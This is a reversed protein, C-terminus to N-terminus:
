PIGPSLLTFAFSRRVQLWMCRIDSNNGNDEMGAPSRYNSRWVRETSAREVVKACVFLGSFVAVTGLATLPFSYRQKSITDGLFKDKMAWPEFYSIMAAVAVVLSQCILGLLAALNRELDMRKRDPSVNLSLNPARLRRIESRKATSTTRQKKNLRPRQQGHDQDLKPAPVAFEAATNRKSLATEAHSSAYEAASKMSENDDM